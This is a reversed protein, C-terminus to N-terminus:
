SGALGAAIQENTRILFDIDPRPKDMERGVAIGLSVISARLSAPLANAPDQMLGRMTTWLVRNDAIARAYDVSGPERGADLAANTQRFVDAEVERPSRQRNAAKYASIGQASGYM